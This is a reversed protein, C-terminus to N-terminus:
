EFRLNNLWELSESIVKIDQVSQAADKVFVRTKGIASRIKAFPIRGEKLQASAEKLEEAPAAARVDALAVLAESLRDVVEALEAITPAPGGHSQTVHSVSEALIVNAPANFTLSPRDKESQAELTSRAESTLIAMEGRVYAEVRTTQESMSSEFAESITKVRDESIRRAAEVGLHKRGASAVNELGRKLADLVAGGMAVEGRFIQEATCSGAFRRVEDCVLKGREDMEETLARILKRVTGGSRYTGAAAAQNIILRLASALKADRQALKANVTEVLATIVDQKM